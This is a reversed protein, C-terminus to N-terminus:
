SAPRPIAKLLGDRKAAEMPVEGGDKVLFLDATVHAHAGKATM